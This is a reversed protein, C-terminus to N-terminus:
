FVKNISNLANFVLLIIWSLAPVAVRFYKSSDIDFKNLSVLTYMGATRAWSQIKPDADLVHYHMNYYYRTLIFMSIFAM